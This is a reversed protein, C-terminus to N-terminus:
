RVVDSTVFRQVRHHVVRSHALLNIIVRFTFAKFFTTVLGLALLLEEIDLSHRHYSYLLRNQLVITLVSTDLWQTTHNRCLSLMLSCMLTQISLLWRKSRVNICARSAEFHDCHVWSLDIFILCPWETWCCRWTFDLCSLVLRRVILYCSLFGSQM